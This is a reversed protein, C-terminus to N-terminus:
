KDNKLIDLTHAGAGILDLRECTSLHYKIFLEYTEDDMKNLTQRIYNAPGDPSIIKIRKLNTLENLENIEELTLRSYLDTEKPTVHFENNIEKTKLSEKINNDIFGHEIIAYDNMCYAVMIIGDKKTIRKAENIAKIKEEKSILHYMPGFLLTLNFTNDEIMSLDKANGLITKINKSKQEIQKINHKVLEVATVDYGLKELEVSYRGTGAGIDVIKDNPKLYEKIYKLSTIFEVEGRRRTLRKDENFKNYYKILNEENM